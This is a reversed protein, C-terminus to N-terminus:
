ELWNLLQNLQVDLPYQDFSLPVRLIKEGPFKTAPIHNRIPYGPPSLPSVCYNMEARLPTRGMLWNFLKAETATPPRLFGPNLPQKGPDPKPIHVTQLGMPDIFNVPNSLTFEYLNIEGTENLPDRTIWRALVSSYFRYGFYSLGTKEDYRKTSFQFPQDATGAKSLLTGFPDYGYAQIVVQNLDLLATVNGKGDYIYSYDQGEQKLNLLGGIGGGLNLGWLYEKVVNDAGDREQLPLFGDRIFRLDNVIVSNEYEIKRVLFDNGDYSYAAKHLIGGSDIYEISSLRNEADYLATFMNGDPTYGQTMNGDADYTFNKLPSTADQLQNVKNYNYTILENQLFTTPIGNSITESSRMDQQNYGYVYQNIIQSASNKNSIETLRNLNDFQFTTVSGNPRTLSQVFPNTGSYAYAFANVGTQISILRNRDDYSYSVRQGGQPSLGTRRGLPDYQYTVIDNAWPGDISLLRSNKDYDYQTVGIGDQMQITRNYNDYQFSVGQTGDSFSINLLNHNADYNYDATDGRANTRSTLLGEGDYDFAVENGDAYAKKVLRDDLDYVFVTANGNSDILKVNNGNADYVAKILGLEANEIQVLRNLEDYIYRNTRGTRDTVSDLLHPCCSSYTAIDFKADPYTIKTVSNLSNYDYTLTLGTADTYTRVRGLPDYTISGQIQGARRVEQFRHDSGYIYDTVIGLANTHSTIQGFENYALTSTKGLRDTISTIDHFDNYTVTITGLGDQIRTIDVDNQAYTINAVNFKPDTISTIGGMDNYSLRIVHGHSDTISNRNGGANYDYGYTVSGGEPYFIGGIEGWPGSTPRTLFYRTKPADSNYNNIEPSQWPIYDRPSVYWSYGGRSFDDTGGYYFYEEKNGVPNTITIRYNEWMINDPPPYTDSNEPIGDAPETKFEWRSRSNEISTLYVDGDYSFASWYGGMDTIKILNRNTDYEFTAVRGFPDAVQAVLGDNNYTLTFVKGTADTIMTLQENADYGITLSQGYADRIEVLFPQLSSTGPPIKYRYLTDDPFRLEFHNEAVRTLTNFVQYPRLYGGGGDPIYVDRRGDPMVVIVSGGTDVMLYSGYNFQWKNGFPENFVIASQSNYSLTMSVPPGIPPNYWLPTDTVFLNMNVVNVLWRPSGCGPAEPAPVGCCGGYINELEHDALKLGPLSESDSFVIVVGGWERAFEDLQQHFRRHSQPDFLTLIGNDIKEFIWYHGSDGANRGSIQVIAPLLFNKLDAIQMRRGSVKYGYKAAIAALDKLSYGKFSAPYIRRVQDAESTKGDQELLEALALVGCNLMALQHKKYRSLRQIWHSAYTRHRWDPSEAKLKRFHETAEKFNNQLVKLVGLRQRAKNQLMKKGIHRSGQNMEIIWRFKEEAETYRGNYRADCGIHLVAESVWPSDPYDEIHNKFLQAAKKYEHKNWAQIAKGFSLNIAKNKELGASYRSEGNEPFSQIASQSNEHFLNDKTPYLQGGLQGAAMLEETKPARSLDLPKVSLRVKPITKAANSFNPILFSTLLFIIFFKYRNSINDPKSPQILTQM